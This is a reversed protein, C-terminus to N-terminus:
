LGFLNGSSQAGFSLSLNETAKIFDGYSAVLSLSANGGGSGTPRLTISDGTQVSAGNLFWELVPAAASTPFSFPAAYLSAETGTIAYSDALAHDYLIGLLPDNKYIRVMPEAATLSFSAGGTVSGSQNEVAVSVTSERYQLPSAVIIADKGIGSASAIQTGNVTWTYSLTGPDITRGNGDQLNAVAVMRTSGELPVLPKGAYLPPASSVPEAVLSVDQPRISLTQSYQTGNISILTKVNMLVGTGGLTVAVPQVNGRYVQKGNAFVTMMASALNLSSSLESVTVQSYPAPYQPSVSLTFPQTTNIDFSQASAAFPVSFALIVSATLLPRLSYAPMDGTYRTYM